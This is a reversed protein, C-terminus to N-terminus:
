EGAIKMSELLISGTQIQSRTEVDSGVAVMQQFMDKLNGAITIESVPYQIVGNEVWFGAAGRSYDGTVANVGQGMVETVLLGTGLAKLMQEFNQGTSQVYWNHIGGAHGTPTMKMKRAAYSSLLYTSLVGDTIIQRDQTFVGESDFPSSALARLVHPKEAINFWDPLIKEGLKDLLFSSKRYLSGGSIAMVLHGILGTAVDAAFMVPVKGTKLKKADLRSITKEAAQQGVLEPSWLDDRHRAVTYSYDREMEGNKGEGIVCCSISHRSSAYSALLGHSNGYVKVGYHSDYSAGDSQKIKNSYALAKEEAAIAIKAAMDPNPEDPHFLDLDPINRVMLEQPAPGAYPDESTYLAIDLAAAVTQAIAKESLDSTSASGKRQGRYVTIGLAGDSNFEVNEVECMRTSVSLGTSKTIAVEAADSSLAAMELAKAVAAELEIRQQAVQQKVDM